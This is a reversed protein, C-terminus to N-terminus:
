RALRAALHFPARLAIWALRNPARRRALAALLWGLAPWPRRELDLLRGGPTRIAAVRAVVSPWLVPVDPEVLADGKTVLGASTRALVRHVVLVGDQRFAVVAGAAVRERALPVLRLADGERVLPAMSSSRASVWADGDRALVDPVFDAALGAGTVSV